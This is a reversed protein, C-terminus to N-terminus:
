ANGTSCPAHMGDFGKLIYHGSTDNVHGFAILTLPTHPNGLVLSLHQIAPWQNKWFVNTNLLLDGLFPHLNPSASFALHFITTVLGNTKPHCM